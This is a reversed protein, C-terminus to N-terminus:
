AHLQVGCKQCFKPNWTKGLYENCNPCRWDILSIVVYLIVLPATIYRLNVMPLWNPNIVLFLAFGIFIFLPLLLLKRRKFKAQYALEISENMRKLNFSYDRKALQM